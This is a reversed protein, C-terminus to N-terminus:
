QLARTPVRSADSCLTCTFRRRDGRVACGEWRVAKPEDAGCWRCAAALASRGPRGNRYRAGLHQQRTGSLASLFSSVRCDCIRRSGSCRPAVM